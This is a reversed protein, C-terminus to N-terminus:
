IIGNLIVWWLSRNVEIVWPGLSIGQPVAANGLLHYNGANGFEDTFALKVKTLKRHGPHFKDPAGSHAM